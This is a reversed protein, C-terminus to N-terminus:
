LSKLFALLADREAAPLALYAAHAGAAERGHSEIAEELRTASGDHLLLPRKGVGWLPATRMESPAADGEAIGDGTGIDHLLFDSFAEVAEGARTTHSPHHCAACGVTAFVREGLSETAGAPGREPPPLHSVFATLRDIAALGTDPNVSDEPDELEDCLRLSEASLGTSTERRFLRNTVGLEGAYARAVSALLSADEAKWGFRGVRSTQSVRDRVRAPRGRVGDGDRDDPDARAAIEEDAIEDVLGLGYLPTPIRRVIVNASEPLDPQCTADPLGSVPLLTGGALARFSGDQGRHGVKLVTRFGMGGTTPINHCAACSRANFSPGLGSAAESLSSFDGEGAIAARKEILARPAVYRWLGGHRGAYEAGVGIIVGLALGPAYKVFRQLRM